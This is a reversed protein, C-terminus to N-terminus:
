GCHLMENQSSRVADGHGTDGSVTHVPLDNPDELDELVEKMVNLRTSKYHSKELIHMKLQESEPAGRAAADAAAPTLRSPSGFAVGRRPPSTGSTRPDSPARRKVARGHEDMEALFQEGDYTEAVPNQLQDPRRLAAPICATLLSSATHHHLCCVVSM